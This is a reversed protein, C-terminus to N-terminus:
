TPKEKSLPELGRKVRIPDISADGETAVRMAVCATQIAEAWVNVEPEDMLAKALEGVEETLACMSGYSSPFKRRARMVEKSVAFLFPHELIEGTNKEVHYARDDYLAVMHIDKVNTIPLVRGLHEKCWREIAPYALAKDSESISGRATFIRVEIGEDLWRKVREVMLMIPKGLDDPKTFKHYEALVGDFDVAYWGHSKPVGTRSSVPTHAWEASHITIFDELADKDREYIKGLEALLCKRQWDIAQESTLTVVSHGGTPHPEVFRLVNNSGNETM